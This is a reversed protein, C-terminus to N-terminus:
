REKGKRRNEENRTELQDRLADQQRQMEVVKAMAKRKINIAAAQSQIMRKQSATSSHKSSATNSHGNSSASRSRAVSHDTVYYKHRTESVTTDKGRLSSHDYEQTKGDDNVHHESQQSDVSPKSEVLAKSDSSAQPPTLYASSSSLAIQPLRKMLNDCDSLLAVCSSEYPEALKLYRVANLRSQLVHCLKAIIDYMEKAWADTVNHEKSDLEVQRM